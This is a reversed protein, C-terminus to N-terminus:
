ANNKCKQDGYPIVLLVPLERFLTAPLLFAALMAAAAAAACGFPEVVMSTQQM